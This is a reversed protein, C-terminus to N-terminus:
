LRKATRRPEKRAVAPVSATRAAQPTRTAQATRVAQTERTAQAPQPQTAQATKATKAARAARATKASVAGPVTSKTSGHQKMRGNALAYRRVKRFVTKDPLHRFVYFDPSTNVEIIWPELDSSVGIDLGIETIKPFNKHMEKGALVGLEKLRRTFDTLAAESAYPALLKDLEMLTGGNHYNTIIKGKRAVRGIMGTTEWKRNPTLQAMVRLDFPRGKYQLLSIGRQVLYPKGQTEGKLSALLMAFTPFSKRIVGMQYVYPQDHGWLREVKMVGQGHMGIVPKVFVM